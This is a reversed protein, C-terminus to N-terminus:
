KKSDIWRLIEDGSVIWKDGWTSVYAWKFDQYYKNADERGILDTLISLSMDAPGSGGYGWSYGTPSHKVVHQLPAGNVTVDVDSLTGDEPNYRRGKYEKQVSPTAAVKVWTADPQKKYKQGKGTGLGVGYTAFCSPCMIGWPGVTTKGDVFTDKIPVHCLDCESPTSGAWLQPAGQVLREAHRVLKEAKRINDM